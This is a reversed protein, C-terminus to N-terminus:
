FCDQFHNIVSAQQLFVSNQNYQRKNQSSKVQYVFLFRMLKVILWEMNTIDRPDNVETELFFPSSWKFPSVQTCLTLRDWLIEQLHPGREDQQIDTWMFRLFRVYQLGCRCWFVICHSLLPYSSCSYMSLAWHGHQLYKPPNAKAPDGPDVGMPAQHTRHVNKSFVKWPRKMQVWNM